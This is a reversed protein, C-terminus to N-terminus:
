WPELDALTEIGAPAKDLTEFGHKPRPTHTPKRTPKPRPTKTNTPTPTNTPRQRSPPSTPTPTSTPGNNPSNATPTSVTLPALTSTSSPQQALTAELAPVSNVSTPMEPTKTPTPTSTPPPIPVSNIIEDASTIGDEVQSNLRAFDPKIEDPIIGSLAALMRSQNVLKDRLSVALVTVQPDNEGAAIKLFQTAQDVQRNFETITESIYQYKGKIILAQVESLRRQSFEILLRAEGVDSTTLALRANEVGIKMPYLTDGPISSRSAVAVGGAGIALGTVLVIVLVFLLALSKPRSFGAQFDAWKKALSTRSPIANQIRAVLRNHSSEVFGPRPDFYRSQRELWFLAELAPRIAEAQDPYRSLASTLTEQGSQVMEVCAQFASGLEDQSAEIM